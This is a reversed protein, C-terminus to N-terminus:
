RWVDDVVDYSLNPNVLNVQDCYECKKKNEMYGIPAGLCPKWKHQGGNKCPAQHTDYDFSITTYFVFVKKCDACEQTYAEGDSYGYNDDHDIEQEKKCYPCIAEM